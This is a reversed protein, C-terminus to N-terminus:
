KLYLTKGWEWKRHETRWSFRGLPLLKSSLGLSKNRCPCNQDQNRGEGKLYVYLGWHTIPLCLSQYLPLLTLAVLVHEESTKAGLVRSLQTEKLGVLQLSLWPIATFACPLELSSVSVSFLAWASSLNSVSSHLPHFSSSGKWPWTWTRNEM